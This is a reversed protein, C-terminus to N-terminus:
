APDCGGHIWLLLGSPLFGARTAQEQARCSIRIFGCTAAITPVALLLSISQTPGLSGM